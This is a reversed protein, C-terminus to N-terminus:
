LYNLLKDIIIQENHNNMLDMCKNCIGEKFCNYHKDDKVWIDIVNDYKTFIPDFMPCFIMMCKTNVANCGHMLGGETSIFLKSYKLLLCAERFNHIDKSIDIVNDLVKKGPISMQVIPIKDKIKNIINQWKHLPYQKHQCWEIKAHPEIVIFEKPLLKLIKKIKKEENDTFFLDCKVEPNMINFHKCRSIITHQSVNWIKKSHREPMVKFGLKIKIHKENINYTIYPNNDFVKDKFIISEKNIFLVKVKHKKYIERALATWMLNGGIGM